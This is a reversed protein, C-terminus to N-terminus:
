LEWVVERDARRVIRWTLRHQEVLLALRATLALQDEVHERNHPFVSVRTSTTGPVDGGDTTWVVVEVKGSWGVNAAARRVEATLAEGYAEILQYQATEAEGLAETLYDRQGRPLGGNRLEGRADAAEDSWEPGLDDEQLWAAPKVGVVIDRPATV